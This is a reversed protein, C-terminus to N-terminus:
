PEPTGIDETHDYPTWGEPTWTGLINDADEGIGGSHDHGNWPVVQWSVRIVVSEVTLRFLYAHNAEMKIALPIVINFRSGGMDIKFTLSPQLFENSSYDNAFLFIGDGAKRGTTYIVEGEGDAPIAFTAPGYFTNALGQVAPDNLGSMDTTMDLGESSGPTPNRDRDYINYRGTKTQGNTGDNDATTESHYPLTADYGDGKDYSIVTTQALPHYWGWYGGNVITPETVTFANPNGQIVDFFVKSRVDRIPVASSHGDVENYPEPLPFVEYGQVNMPFPDSALRYDDRTLLLCMSGNGNGQLDVAPHLCVTMYQGNYLGQGNAPNRPTTTNAKTRDNVLDAPDCPQLIGKYAPDSLWAYYGYPRQDDPSDVQPNPGYSADANRNYSVFTYATGDAPPAPIPEGAARTLSYAIEVPDGVPPVAAGGNEKACGALWLAAPLAFLVTLTLYPKMAYKM